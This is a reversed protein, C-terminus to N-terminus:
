GVPLFSEVEGPFTGPDIPKEIYGTCGADLAAQRDGPMAFSTVAVIPVAALAPIARLRRTVEFGNIDPLQIDMLILEHRDANAKEIAETGSEAVEIAHGRTELLYRVLYINHHNDEILLITAM